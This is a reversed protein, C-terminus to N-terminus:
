SVLLCKKFEDFLDSLYLTSLSKIFRDIFKLKKRQNQDIKTFIIVLLFM